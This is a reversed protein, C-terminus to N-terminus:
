QSERQLRDLKAQYLDRTGDDSLAHARALALGARRTDGLQLYARALGFHFRHETGHLRIARQYHSAARRYDGHKEYDVALLFQHFPDKRQVKELRRHFDAEHTREGTRKYLGVMNSLAGAHFPNLSLARAYAREAAVLDGNRLYLVGANSWTTAYVPDLEIATQMYPMAATVKGQAMLEAARNNYYHALARQDSVPRPHHLAIAADGGVDVTFRRGDVRIGANIHNIRYITNESQHWALTEEIEQAYAVLGAERALALFVLTFSLCNAKRARFAQEVTYTADYQYEMGLGKADILFDVLLDLRRKDM